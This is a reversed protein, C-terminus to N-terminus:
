ARGDICACPVAAAGATVKVSTVVAAPMRKVCVVPAKPFFTVGSLALALWVASLAVGLLVISLVTVATVLRAHLTM